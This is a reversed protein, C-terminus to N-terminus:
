PPSCGQMWGVVNVSMTLLKRPMFKGSFNSYLWIKTPSLAAEPEDLIFLSNGGFNEIITMFSEGHSQRHLNEGGIYKLSLGMDTELYSALNYVSEARLFFGSDPRYINRVVTIYDCLESHTQNFSFLFDKNGGESNYDVAVAIAEILTSKGTGNEGVFFTVPSNLKLEYNESLWQVAPIDNLYNGEPLEKKLMIAEVYKENMMM